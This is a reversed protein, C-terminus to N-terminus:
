TLDYGEMESILVYGREVTPATVRYRHRSRQPPKVTERQGKNVHEKSDNILVNFLTLSARQQKVGHEKWPTVGHLWSGVASSTSLLRRVNSSSFTLTSM